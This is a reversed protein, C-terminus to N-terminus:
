GENWLGCDSILASEEEECELLLHEVDEKHLYIATAYKIHIDLMKLVVTHAGTEECTDRAKRLYEVSTEPPHISLLKPHRIDLDERGNVVYDQIDQYFDQQDIDDEEDVFRSREPSGEYLYSFPLIRFADLNWALCKLIQIGAKWTGSLLEMNGIELRELNKMSLSSFLQIFDKLHLSLNKVRFYELKLWQVSRPFTKDYCFLKAREPPNEYDEPLTLELHRLDKVNSLLSHLGKLKDQERLDPEDGYSALNLELYHLGAYADLCRLWCSSMRTSEDLNFATPPISSDCQFIRPQKDALALATTLTRFEAIGNPYEHPSNNPGWYWHLPFAQLINWQRALPSDHDIMPLSATSSLEDHLSPWDGRLRVSELRTLKRLGQVLETLFGSSAKLKEEHEARRKWDAYGQQIFHMGVCLKHAEALYADVGDGSGKPRKRLLDVLKNVDPDADDFSDCHGDPDRHVMFTMQIWLRQVYNFISYTAAFAVSDYQLMRVCSSLIPHQTIAEFVDYDEDQTSVYITDFLYESACSCWSKSVLRTTKLEDKDLLHLLRLLVENPLYM